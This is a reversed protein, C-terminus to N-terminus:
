RRSISVRRAALAQPNIKINKREYKTKNRLDYITIKVATPDEDEDFENLRVVISGKDAWFKRGYMEWIRSDESTLSDTFGKLLNDTDPKSKCPKGRMRDKEAASWSKPMTIFFDIHIRNGLRYKLANAKLQLEEKYTFYRAVADRQDEGRKWKDSQTMRVAGM